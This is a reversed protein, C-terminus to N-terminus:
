TYFRRAHVTSSSGECIPIAANSIGLLRSKGGTSHQKPVLGLWAAFERGKRFASGNGVAAIMATSVLPGVGPVTLLRQCAADQQAIAEIQESLEEIELEVSKWEQWLRDLLYRMRPTLNTEADELIAAMQRKLYARGKRYTIGRELLFARLQNIVSTRRSILRDRVRHLAQLDLQDDTKLPVFRMRPRQVAEAIAEADLYDNKNGKVFPKVFQAPILRVHHGQETLSAGLRHAGCCAEMGILCCRLNATFLLLQRRSFCKRVVVKGRDNLGIVHFTSKGLDIGLTRVEM